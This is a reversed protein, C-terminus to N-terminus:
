PRTTMNAPPGPTRLPEALRAFECLLARTKRPDIVEEVWFKEASRFPSRLKNLRDEIEKLKAGPDAAADIEARYAAEIGGELPLSGWYASPWAYRMSFRNAPQHVVGAVGFANRVIITCWPVTTQNVAAMARVGHRITASKEADLGIMFGPCDM